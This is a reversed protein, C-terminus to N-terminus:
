CPFFPRAIKHSSLGIFSLYKIVTQIHHSRTEAVGHLYMCVCVYICVYICVYVYIYMCIYIYMYICVYICVYM